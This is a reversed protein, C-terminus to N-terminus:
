AVEQGFSHFHDVPDAGFYRSTLDVIDRRVLLCAPHWRDDGRERFGIAGHELALTSVAQRFARDDWILFDQETFFIWNSECKDLCENVATDRWDEGSIRPADLTTVGGIRDFERRVYERWDEPLHQEIFAVVVRGLHMRNRALWARWLPFDVHRPWVSVVDPRM